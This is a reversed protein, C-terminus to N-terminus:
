SPPTESQFRRITYDLSVPDLVELRPIEMQHRHSIFSSVQRRPSSDDGTYLYYVSGSGYLVQSKAAIYSAISREYAERQITRWMDMQRHYQLTRQRESPCFVECVGSEQIEKLYRSLNKSLRTVASRAPDDVSVRDEFWDMSVPYNVLFYDFVTKELEPSVDESVARMCSLLLASSCLRNTLCYGILKRCLFLIARGDLAFQLLDIDLGDPADDSPLLEYAARCARYEGTLLMSVVYWGLLNGAERIRHGFADMRAVSVTSDDSDERGLIKILLALVRKRDGEIDWKYLLIDILDITDSRYQVASEIASFSADIMKETYLCRHSSVSLVIEHLASQNPSRCAKLLLPEVLGARESGLRQLLGISARIAVTVDDDSVPREIADDLCRIAEVLLDEHQQLEMVGLAIIADMRRGSELQRALSLAVSAYKRVDHRAGALLVSRVAHSYLRMDSQILKLGSDARQPTQQFWERLADYASGYTIGDEARESILRTTIVAKKASCDIKPLTNCFVRQFRYLSTGSLATFRDSTCSKLFDLNGSNHLTSLTEALAEHEDNPTKDIASLLTGDANASLVVEEISM